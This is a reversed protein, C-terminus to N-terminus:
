DNAEEKQEEDGKEKEKENEKEKEKNGDDGKNEEEKEEKKEEKEAEKKDGDDDEKKEKEKELKEPKAIEDNANQSAEVSTEHDDSEEPANPIKENEKGDNQEEKEMEILLAELRQLEMQKREIENMPQAQRKKRQELELAMMEKKKEERMRREELCGKVKKVVAGIVIKPIPYIVFVLPVFVLICLFINAFQEHDENLRNSAAILLILCFLCTGEMLNVRQHEFPCLLSHSWLCVMLILLLLSDMDNPSLYRFASLLAIFLRRTFIIFEYFWYKAKYTEIMQRVSYNSGNGRDEASQARMKIFIRFFIVCVTVCLLSGFVFYGGFCKTSADYFHVMQGNDSMRTCSMLKFSIFLLSGAM